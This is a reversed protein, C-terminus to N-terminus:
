EESGSKIKYLSTIDEDTFSYPQGSDNLEGDRCKYFYSRKADEDEKDGPHWLERMIQACNLAPDKLWKLVVTRKSKDEESSSEERHHPKEVPASEWSFNEGELAESIIGRVATRLERYEKLTM